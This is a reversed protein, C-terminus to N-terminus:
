TAGGLVDEADDSIADLRMVVNETADPCCVWPKRVLWHDAPLDVQRLGLVPAVAAFAHPCFTKGDPLYLRTDHVEFYDGVAM